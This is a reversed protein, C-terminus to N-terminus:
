AMGDPVGDNSLSIREMIFDGRSYFTLRLMEISGSTIYM